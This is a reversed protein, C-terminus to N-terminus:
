SGGDPWICQMSPGVILLSALLFAVLSLGDYTSTVSFTHTPATFFWNAAFAFLSPWYGQVLVALGGPSPWAPFFFIFPLATPGIGPTLMERALWGFVVSAIAVGYRAWAPRLASDHGSLKEDGV